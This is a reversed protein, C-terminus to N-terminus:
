NFSTHSSLQNHQLAFIVIYVGQIEIHGQTHSSQLNNSCINMVRTLLFPLFLMEHLFLGTIVRKRPTCFLFVLKFVSM